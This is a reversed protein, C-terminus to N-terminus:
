LVMQSWKYRLTVERTQCSTNISHHILHSELSVPVMFMIQHSIQMKHARPSQIDLQLERQVAAVFVSIDQVNADPVHSTKLKAYKRISSTHDVWKKM